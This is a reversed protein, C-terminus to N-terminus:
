RPEQTRVVLATMAALHAAYQDLSQDEPKPHKALVSALAARMDAELSTREEHKDDEELLRALDARDTANTTATQAIREPDFPLALERERTVTRPRKTHHRGVPSPRSTALNQM